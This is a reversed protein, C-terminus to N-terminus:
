NLQTYSTISLYLYEHDKSYTFKFVGKDSLESVFDFNSIWEEDKYHQEEQHSEENDVLWNKTSTSFQVDEFYKHFVIKNDDIGIYLIGNTKIGNFSLQALMGYGRNTPFAYRKRFDNDLLLRETGPVYHRAHQEQIEEPNLDAHRMFKTGDSRTDIFERIKNVDSTKWRSIRPHEKAQNSAKYLRLNIALNKDADTPQSVNDTSPNNKELIHSEITNSSSTHLPKKDEKVTNKPKKRKNKKQKTRTSSSSKKEVPLDSKEPLPLYTKSIKSLIKKLM